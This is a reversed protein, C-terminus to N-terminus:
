CHGEERKRRKLLTGESLSAMTKNRIRLPKDSMSAEEPLARCEFQTITVELSFLFPLTRKHM